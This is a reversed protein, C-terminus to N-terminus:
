CGGQSLGKYLSIYQDTMLDSSFNEKVRRYGTQGLQEAKVPDDILISLKRRLDEVNGPEILLGTENHRVVKPIAGVRTAIVPKKSAMAELLVMPLGEKVSPLVFIDILSLINPIDNRYGTLIVNDELGFAHIMRKLDKKLPGEGVILFKLNNHNKLIKKGAKLLFEHGKEEGLAGVTGIIKLSGSFHFEKKLIGSCPLNNFRDLDIGNDIITIKPKSIRYKIMEKFIGDSVAVIRNFFRIWISDFLCYIRLKWHSKLWNHNTAIRPVNPCSALLGFLNSKYGHSHILDIKHDKIFKRIQLVLKLDFQGNCPFIVTSLGSKEAEDAIETHPNTKNNIVGVVPHFGKGKKVLTKCLVLM